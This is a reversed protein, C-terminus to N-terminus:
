MNVETEVRLAPAIKEGLQTILREFLTVIIREKQRTPYFQTELLHLSSLDVLGLVKAVDIKHHLNFVDINFLSRHDACILENQFICFLM